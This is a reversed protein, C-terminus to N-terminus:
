RGIEKTISGSFNSQISNLQKAPDVIFFISAAETSENSRNLYHFPLMKFAILSYQILLLLPIWSSLSDSDICESPAGGPAEGVTAGGTSSWRRPILSEVPAKSTKSLDRLRSVALSLRPRLSALSILSRISSGSCEGRMPEMSSSSRTASAPRLLSSLSATLLPGKCLALFCKLVSMLPVLRTSLLVDDVDVMKMENDVLLISNLWISTLSILQLSSSQRTFSWKM